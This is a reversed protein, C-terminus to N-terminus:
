PASYLKGDMLAAPVCFTESRVAIAFPMLVQVDRGGAAKCDAGPKVGYHIVMRTYDPCIDSCRVEAVVKTGRQTGIVAGSKPYADFKRSGHYKKAFGVLDGDSLGDRHRAMGVSIALAFLLTFLVTIRM